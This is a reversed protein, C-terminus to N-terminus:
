LVSERFKDNFSVEIVWKVHYEGSEFSSPFLNETNEPIKVTFPFIYQGKPVNASKKVM